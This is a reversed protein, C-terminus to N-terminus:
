YGSPAGELFRAVELACEAPKILPLMFGCDLQAYRTKPLLESVTRQERVLALKDHAGALVLKPTDSRQLMERLQLVTRPPTPGLRSLVSSRGDLLTRQMRHTVWAQNIPLPESIQRLMHEVIRKRGFETRWLIPAILRSLAFFRASQILPTSMLTLSIVRHPLRAGLVAGVHGGFGHGVWHFRGAPLANAVALAMGVCGSLEPWKEISQSYAFGPPDIVAVQYGYEAALTWAFEAMSRHDGMLTPWCLVAPGDNGFVHVGLPGVDTNVMVTQFHPM